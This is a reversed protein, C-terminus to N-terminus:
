GKVLWSYSPFPWTVCIAHCFCIMWSYPYYIRNFFFFFLYPCSSIFSNANRSRQIEIQSMQLNYGWKPELVSKWSETKIGRRQAGPEHSGRIGLQGLSHKRLGRRAEWKKSGGRGGGVMRSHPHDSGRETTGESLQPRHKPWWLWGQIAKEEKVAWINPWSLNESSIRM